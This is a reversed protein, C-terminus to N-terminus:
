PSVARPPAYVRREWRDKCVTGGCAKIQVPLWQLNSVSDCGGVALPIVHDAHWRCSGPTPGPEPCPHRRKFEALVASSRRIEGRADRPPAGCQRVEALPDVPAAAPQLYQQGLPPQLYQGFAATVVLLLLLAARKVADAGRARGDM